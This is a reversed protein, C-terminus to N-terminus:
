FCYKMDMWQMHTMSDIVHTIEIKSSNNANQIVAIEMVRREMDANRYLNWKFIYKFLRLM